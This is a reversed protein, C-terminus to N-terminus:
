VACPRTLTPWEELKEHPVAKEDLLQKESQKFSPKLVVKALTEERSCELQPRCQLSLSIWFYHLRRQRGLDQLSIRFPQVKMESSLINRQEISM